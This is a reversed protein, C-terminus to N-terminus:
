RLRRRGCRSFSANSTIMVYSVVSSIPRAVPRPLWVVIPVVFNGDNTHIWLNGRPEGVVATGLHAEVELTIARSAVAVVRVTLWSRDVVAYGELEESPLTARDSAIITVVARERTGLFPSGLILAAPYVEVRGRKRRARIVRPRDTVRSM